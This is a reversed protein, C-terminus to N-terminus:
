WTHGGYAAGLLLFRRRLRLVALLGPALLAWATGGARGAASSCACGGRPELDPLGDAGPDLVAVSVTVTDDGPTAECAVASTVTAHLAATSAGAAPRLTAKLEVSANAALDGLACDLAGGSACTGQSTTAGLIEAGDATAAVVTAPAVTAAANTVTLTIEAAEGPELPAAPGSAAIALDGSSPREVRVVEWQKGPVNNHHLLLVDVPGAAEASLNMLVSDTGIFAPTAGTGHPAADVLLKGLDSEGSVGDGDVLRDAREAGARWRFALNDAGLDIESLAASLVLVTSFFPSTHAVDPTLLNVPLRGFREGTTLSYTSAVLADRYPGDPNRAEVRIEYDYANDDDTDVQVKVVSIPGRAATTWPGAVAVGFFVKADAEPVGAFLDTGVGVAVIDAQAVGPDTESEPRADDLEALQLATVVPAPHAGGASLAITVDAQAGDCSPVHSGARDSAARVAGTYPLVLDEGSAPSIRVLGSTQNLYHRAEPMQNGQTAATGPDPGPSGLTVPDLSLRLTATVSEGAALAVQAPEVTLTAGPLDFTPEVALDFTAAAAGHNDIVFTRELETAATAILSGFSIGVEGGALDAAATAQASVARSVDIRGGGVVGTGYTVGSLNQISTGANVLAAKVELPGLGPRAQRVLAAAGAIVPSAMSTGGNPVALNGTAVWASDVVGPATIEPKLRGDIASPGRSSFGALLEAGPGGYPQSPDLEVAVPGQGLAAKLAAGADLTVLFGAIASQGPTGPMVFPLPEDENDVIIAAVAGAAEANAFKEVFLCTGRDILVVKGAVEAANTFPTCGLAPESAVLPASLTGLTVLRATFEAEAAAYDAMATPPDTVRLVRFDNDVSAAVALVEPYTAPSGVAFFNQGDNGAAAVVLTGVATLETIMAGVTETGLGYGTGLSGNVVDLRDDFAGDNNPDAARDLASALLTTPGQCGFIKLAYLSARPAVGPPVAFSALDTTIEYPGAYSTGDALVGTGAAIGAVHTGHGGSIQKGITTACDLPDPDPQPQSQGGSPNYADGSFDWGGVVKTTPFTAPEILTPDNAAYDAATGPGAFDAHTYDIGSDIIGITVGEGAFGAPGTWVSPAGIVRVASDMTREVLPVREVRRVGPLKALRAAGSADTLVQLANALRSLRAIIPAGHALVAPELAAQEHEIEAIRKKTIPAAAPSRADLGRPISASAGPGELVVFYADISSSSVPAPAAATEERPEAGTCAAVGIVAWAPVALLRRSLRRTRM